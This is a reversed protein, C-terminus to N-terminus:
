GRDAISIGGDVLISQGTIFRGGPGALLLALAAVDEVEGMRGVPIQATYRKVYSQNGWLAKSFNTRIIGPVIANITIGRGGWEVALSRVLGNEAAKSTGYVGLNATGVFASISSVVIMAGDEVGAMDPLFANALQWVSKVNAQMVRDWDKAPLTRLSGFRPNIAASIVLIDIHSVAARVDSAFRAVDQADAIDLAFGLADGGAARTDNVAAAVRDMSRGSHVIRAGCEAFLNAIARGIGATSGVVLATRQHLDILEACKM